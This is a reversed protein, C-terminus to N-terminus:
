DVAVQVKRLLAPRHHDEGVAAAAAPVTRAVAVNSGDELFRSQAGQQHIQQGGFLFNVASVDKVDGQQCLPEACCRVPQLAPLVGCPAPHTVEPGAGTCAGRQPGCGFRTRLHVGHNGAAAPRVKGPRAECRHTRGSQQQHPTGVGLDKGQVPLSHVKHPGRYM